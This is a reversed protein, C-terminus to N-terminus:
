AETRDMDKMAYASAAAQFFADGFGPELAIAENYAQLAGAYDRNHAAALGDYYRDLAKKSKIGFDAPKLKEGGQATAACSSALTLTLTLALLAGMRGLTRSLGQAVRPHITPSSPPTLRLSHFIWM